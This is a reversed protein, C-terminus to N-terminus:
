VLGPWATFNLIYCAGQHTRVLSGVILLGAHYMQIIAGARCNVSGHRKYTNRNIKPCVQTIFDVMITSRMSITKKINNIVKQCTENLITDVILATMYNIDTIFSSSNLVSRCNSVHIKMHTIVDHDSRM